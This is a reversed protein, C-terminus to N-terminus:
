LRWFKSKWFKSLGIHWLIVAPYILNFLQRCAGADLSQTLVRIKDDALLHTHSLLAMGALLAVLGCMISLSIIFTKLLFGSVRVLLDKM